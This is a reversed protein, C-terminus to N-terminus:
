ADEIGIFEFCHTFTSIYPATLVQRVVKRNRLYAHTICHPRGPENTILGVHCPYVDEKILVADGLKYEKLDKEVMCDKFPEVLSYEFPMRAYNMPGTFDPPMFGLAKGVVAVLGVCDIGHIRTRGQHRWRVGLWKAAEDAVDQRTAV